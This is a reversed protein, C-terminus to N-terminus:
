PTTQSASSTCVRRCFVMTLAKWSITSVMRLCWTGGRAPAMTRATPRTASAVSTRPRKGYRLTQFTEPAETLSIASVRGIPTVSSLRIANAAQEQKSKRRPSKTKVIRVLFSNGESESPNAKDLIQTRRRTSAAQKRTSAHIEEVAARSRHFSLSCPRNSARADIANVKSGPSGSRRMRSFDHIRVPAPRQTNPTDKM